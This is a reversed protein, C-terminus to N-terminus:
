RILWLLGFFAANVAALLGVETPALRATADGRLRTSGDATAAAPQQEPAADAPVFQPKAPRSYAWSETRLLWLLRATDARLDAAEDFAAAAEDPAHVVPAPLALEPVQPPAPLPMEAVFAEREVVAPTAPPAKLAPVLVASPAARKPPPLSATPAAKLKPPSLQLPAPAESPESPEQEEATEHRRRAAGTAAWLALVVLVSLWHPPATRVLTSWSLPEGTTCGAVASRLRAASPRLPASLALLAHLPDGAMEDTSYPQATAARRQAGAAAARRHPIVLVQGAYLGYNADVTANAALLAKQSLGYSEAVSAVSEGRRVRHTSARAPAPGPSGAACSAVGRSRAGQRTRQACLSPLSSARMSFTLRFSRRFTV